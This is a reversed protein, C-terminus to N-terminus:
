LGEKRRRQLAILDSLLQAVHLTGAQARFGMAAQGLYAGQLVATWEMVVGKSWLRWLM